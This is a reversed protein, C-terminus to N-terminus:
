GGDDDDIGIFLGQEFTETVGDGAAFDEFGAEVEFQGPGDVVDVAEGGFPDLGKADPKFGVGFLFAIAHHDPGASMVAFFDGEEDSTAGLDIGGGKGGAVLCDGNVQEGGTDGDLVDDAIEFGPGIAV